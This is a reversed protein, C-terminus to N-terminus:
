LVGKGPARVSIKQFTHQDLVFVAVEIAGCREPPTFQTAKPCAPAASRDELDVSISLVRHEVTEKPAFITRSAPCAQSAIGCAVEIASRRQAAASAVTDDIFDTRPLM